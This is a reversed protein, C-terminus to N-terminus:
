PGPYDPRLSIEGIRRSAAAQEARRRVSIGERHRRYDLLVDGMVATPGQASLRAWLEHDQAVAFSQDCFVPQGDPAVRCFMYTPHVGPPYFEAVARSQWPVLPRSLTRIVRGDGDILRYGTALALHGKMAGIQRTLRAPHCIDDSDMRAILHGRAAHLGVNLASTLGPPSENRLIRLRSDKGAASSLLCLTADSSYDDVIIFEYATFTQAAVSELAVELFPLGNRVAKARQCTTREHM